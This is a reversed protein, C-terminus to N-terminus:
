HTLHYMFNGTAKGLEFIAVAAAAIGSIATFYPLFLLEGGNYEKLESDTLSLFGNCKLTVNKM